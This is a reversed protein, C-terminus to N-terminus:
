ARKSFPSWLHLRSASCFGAMAPTPLTRPDSRYAPNLRGVEATADAEGQKACQDTGDRGVRLRLSTGAPM